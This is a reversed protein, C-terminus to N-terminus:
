PIPATWNVRGDTRSKTCVEYSKPGEYLGKVPAWSAHIIRWGGARSLRQRRTGWRYGIANMFCRRM